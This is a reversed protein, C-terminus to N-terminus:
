MINNKEDDSLTSEISALNSLSQTTRCRLWQSHKQSANHM